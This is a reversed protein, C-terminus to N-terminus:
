EERGYRNAEGRRDRCIDEADDLSVYQFNNRRDRAKMVLQEGIMLCEWWKIENRSKLIKAAKKFLERENQFRGPISLSFKMDCAARYKHNSRYLYQHDQTDHFRRAENKLHGIRRRLYVLQRRADIKTTYSIKLAGSPYVQYKDANYTLEELGYHSLARKVEPVLRGPNQHQNNRTQLQETLGIGSLIISKSCENDSHRQKMKEHHNRIETLEEFLRRTTPSLPGLEGPPDVRAQPPQPPQPARPPPSLPRPVRAPLTDDAGPAPVPPPPPLDNAQPQPNQSLQQVIINLSRIEDNLTGIRGSLATITRDQAVITRDHADLMRLLQNTQPMIVARFTRIENYCEQFIEFSETLDAPNM